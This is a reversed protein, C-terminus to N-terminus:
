FSLAIGTTVFVGENDTAAGNTQSASAGAPGTNGDFAGNTVLAGARPDAEAGFEAYGIAGILSVGPALQYAVNGVMSQHFRNDPINLIGEEVGQFYTFSFGWPGTEYAIGVDWGEGETSSVGVNANALGGTVAGPNTVRIRGQEISAYSGGVTFGAWSIEGGASWALFDGGLSRAIGGSTGLELGYNDIVTGGAPSEAWFFGGSVGIDVPGFSEVFNAGISVGQNYNGIVNDATLASVDGGTPDVDPLYSVGLQLGSFRPTFYTIKQGDNDGAPELTTAGFATRFLGGGTANVVHNSVSGSNLGFGVNPATLTMLYGASNESGLLLRGYEPSSIFLYSEDIQDTSTNAELQVNFGFTLGNDLTNSGQFIIESDSWQDFSQANFLTRNDGFGFWQNHFGGVSVDWQAHAAGAVLGTAVIATTGLLVKRM